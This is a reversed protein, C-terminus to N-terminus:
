RFKLRDLDNPPSKYKACVTFIYCHFKSNLTTKGRFNVCTLLKQVYFSLIALNIEIVLPLSSRIFFCEENIFCYEAKFVSM